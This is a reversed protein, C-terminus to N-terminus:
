RKIDKITRGLSPQTEACVGTIPCSCRPPMLRTGAANKALPAKGMAAAGEAAAGPNQQSAPAPAARAPHAPSPSLGPSERPSEAGDFGRPTAPGRPRAWPPTVAPFPGPRHGPHNGVKPPHRSNDGPQPFLFHQHPQQQRHTPPILEM